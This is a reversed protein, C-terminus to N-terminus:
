PNAAFNGDRLKARRRSTLRTRVGFRGPEEGNCVRQRRSLTVGMPLGPSSVSQDFTWCWAEARGVGVAVYVTRTQYIGVRM